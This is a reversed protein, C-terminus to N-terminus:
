GASVQDSRREFHRRHGLRFGAVAGSVLGALVVPFAYMMAVMGKAWNDIPDGSRGPTPTATKGMIGDWNTWVLGFLVYALVTGIAGGVITWVAIWFWTKVREAVPVPDSTQKSKM